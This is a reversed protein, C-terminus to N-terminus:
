KGQKELENAHELLYDVRENTPYYEALPDKSFTSLDGIEKLLEGELYMDRATARALESTPINLDCRKEIQRQRWAVAYPMTLYTTAAAVVGAALAGLKGRGGGVYTGQGVMLSFPISKAVSHGVAEIGDAHQAHTAEHHLGGEVGKRVFRAVVRGFSDKIEFFGKELITREAWPIILINKGPFAITKLTDLSPCHKLGKSAIKEADVILIDEVGHSRFIDRIVRQQQWSLDTESSECARVFDRNHRYSDYSGIAGVVAAVGGVPSFFLSRAYRGAAAMAASETTMLGFMASL